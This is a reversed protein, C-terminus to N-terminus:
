KSVDTTGCRALQFAHVKFAILHSQVPVAQQRTHEMATVLCRCCVPMSLVAVCLLRHMSVLQAITQVKRHIFIQVGSLYVPKPVFVNFNM